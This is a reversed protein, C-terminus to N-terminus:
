ALIWNKQARLQSGLTEPEFTPYFLWFRTLVINQSLAYEFETKKPQLKEVLFALFGILPKFSTSKLRPTM